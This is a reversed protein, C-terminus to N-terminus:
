HGGDRWSVGWFLPFPGSQFGMLSKRWAPKPFWQGLPVFSAETFVAVQARAALDRATGPDDNDIWKARLREAEEVGGLTAAFLDFQDECPVSQCIASWPLDDRAPRGFAPLSRREVAMDRTTVGIEMLQENVAKAIAEMVPDDAARALILPEGTHGSAKVQAALSKISQKAGMREAGAENYFESALPFMGVPTKFRDSGAGFVSEMVATQDIMALIARRLGPNATPGAATNLRLLAYEGVPDRVGTAFGSELLAEGPQNPPLDELWDAQGDRAAQIPDPFLRWVVRDVEVSRRGSTFNAEEPRPKYATFRELAFSEGPRWSGPSLLFPGGGIPTEVPRDPPTAALREPMIVPPSLASKVLMAPLRRVPSKFRLLLTRPDPARLQDLRAALAIGVRDRAMWRRLSAACDAATVATGDHFSLGARLTLTWAKGDDEMRHHDVMQPMPNLAADVGYLTEFIAMAAARTAFSPTAIPDLSEPMFRPVFVISKPEAALAPATMSLPLGSLFRRRRM